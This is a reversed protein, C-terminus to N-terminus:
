NRVVREENEGGSVEERGEERVKEEASQRLPLHHTYM